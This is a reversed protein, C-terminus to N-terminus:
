MESSAGPAGGRAVLGGARSSLLADGLRSVAGNRPWREDLRAHIERARRALMLSGTSDVIRWVEMATECAKDPAGAQMYAQALHAIYEAAWESARATGLDDLASTLSVIAEDNHVSHDRGLFRHVVGRELTYFAPSFYYKWPPKEGDMESVESALEIGRFIARVAGEHDGSIALGRAEFHADFARQGIWASPIRQAAQALGIMPPIRGLLFALNGKFSLTTSVLTPNNAETAWEYARDYWARADRLNGVSTNLWGAFEAWQASVDLIAPRATGRAEIVLNEITALQGMVPQILPASGIADETARQAALVAALPAAVGSDVRSPRRAAYFIREEDDLVSGRSVSEDPTVTVDVDSELDVFAHSIIGDLEVLSMGLAKALRIRSEAYPATLGLEWRSVTSKEVGIAEALTEQTYGLAKRRAALAPRKQPPPV